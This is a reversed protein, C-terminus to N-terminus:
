KLDNLLGQFDPSEAMIRHAVGRLKDVQDSTLKFSTPLRKFYLREKHDKVSDFNVEILYIKIDGCSGSEIKIEGGKCRQTRVEDAWSKMSDRLLAITEKNYQEIAISSYSSFMAGFSPPTLLKDWKNDQQTEANVVIFVVKQVKELPTGKISEWFSGTLIVRDLIARLGLNDTVGGDVLHIYPKEKSDLLPEINNALYFQRASATRGKLLEAVEESIKYGCTGAYNRLTIPSMLMPVASSAACARAVPFKSLDSCFVDFWDQTFGIRTGYTMETANIIIIPGGRTTLEGFTGGEFIHKDYYEAALDSRDFTSSFLRFWNVPNLLARAILAGQINKKLFKKEFDQFIRDEFLGYYGATFSGGSVSSIGDVEDLLRRKRGDITVETEKLVELVGYSLAAARTGGGSFTLLLLLKDSSEPAKVNKGRYGTGPHYEKIPLNLPYHACGLALAGALLLVIYVLFHRYIKPSTDAKKKLPLNQNGM